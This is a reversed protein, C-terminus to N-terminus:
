LHLFITQTCSVHADLSKFSSIPVPTSINLFAGHIYSNTRHSPLFSLFTNSSISARSLMFSPTKLACTFSDFFSKEFQSLSTKPSSSKASPMVHVFSLISVCLSIIFCLILFSRSSHQLYSILFIFFILHILLYLIFSFMLESSACFHKDSM